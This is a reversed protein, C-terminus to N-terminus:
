YKFPLNFGEPLFEKLTNCIYNWYDQADTRTWAMLNNLKQSYAKEFTARTCIPTYVSEEDSIIRKRKLPYIDNGYSKNTSANLLAFNWIFDKENM